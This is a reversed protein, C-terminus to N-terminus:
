FRYNVGARVINAHLDASTTMVNPGGVVANTVLTTEVSGFDVYLYEAKVTWNRNLAWELGGGVTWGAKTKRSDSSGFTITTFDDTFANSVKIDTVALGGTAYLLATPTVTWGLRGRFTFLWDTKVSANVAYNTSASPFHAGGSLSDDLNFANFDSEIGYVGSGVQWNYGAQIGGTFGDPSLSGSAANNVAALNAPITYQCDLVATGSPCTFNSTADSNGWGYGANGGIYFGTWNYVPPPPAKYVPARMPLDSASAIQGFVIAAIGGILFASLRHKMAREGSELHNKALM